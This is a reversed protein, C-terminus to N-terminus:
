IWMCLIYINGRISVSATPSSGVGTANCSYNGVDNLGVNKIQLEFKRSDLVKANSGNPISWGITPEPSSFVINNNNFLLNCDTYNIYKREQM